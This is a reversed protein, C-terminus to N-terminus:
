PRHPEEHRSAGGMQRCSEMCRRCAEACERMVPDDQVRECASACSGCAHACGRCYLEHLPSARLMFDRSLDCAAACDLLARILDAAAHKGGQQLCHQVTAMCIDHCDSCNTICDHMAEDIHEASALHHSM